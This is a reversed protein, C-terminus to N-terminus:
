RRSCHPQILCPEQVSSDCFSEQTERGGNRLEKDDPYNKSLRSNYRISDFCTFPKIVFLVSLGATSSQELHLSLVSSLM